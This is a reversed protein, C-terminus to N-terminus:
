GSKHFPCSLLGDFYPIPLRWGLFWGTAEYRRYSTREGRLEASFHSQGGFKCDLGSDPDAVKAVEGLLQPGLSRPKYSRTCPTPEDRSRPFFFSKFTLNFFWQLSIRVPRKMVARPLCRRSSSQEIFQHATKTTALRPILSPLFCCLHRVYSGCFAGNCIRVEKSDTACYCLM